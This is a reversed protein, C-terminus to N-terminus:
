WMEILILTTYSVNFMIYNIIEGENINKPSFSVGGKGVFFYPEFVIFVM